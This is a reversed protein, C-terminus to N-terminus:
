EGEDLHDVYLVEVPLVFRRAISIVIEEPVPDTLPQVITDMDNWMVKLIAPGQVNVGRFILRRILDERRVGGPPPYYPRRM